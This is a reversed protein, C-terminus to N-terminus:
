KWFNSQDKIAESNIKGSEFIFLTGSLITGSFKIFLVLFKQSDNNAKFQTSDSKILKKFLILIM